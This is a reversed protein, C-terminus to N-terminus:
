WQNPPPEHYDDFPSAAEDVVGGSAPDIWKVQLGYKEHISDEMTLKCRKGEMVQRVYPVCQGRLKASNCGFEALKKLASEKSAPTHTWMKAELSSSEGPVDCIFVFAPKAQEGIRKFEVSLITGIVKQQPQLM